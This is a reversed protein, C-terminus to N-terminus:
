KFALTLAKQWGKFRYIYTSLSPLLGRRADSYSPKRSHKKEFNKLFDLLQDNTYRYRKLSVGHQILLSAVKSEIDKRGYKATRNRMKPKMDKYTPMRKEKQYFDFYFKVTEEYRAQRSKEWKMTSGPTRYPIGAMTCAQKMGDKGYVLRIQQCLHDYKNDTHTNMEGDNKDYMKRLRDVLQAPCTGHLNQNERRKGNEKLTDRIKEKEAETKKGGPRLNAMRKDLGSAILKARHAENILATTQLLGVHDKYESARMNHERVIHASLNEFWEGCFHCQIKDSVTDFLLAGQFGFGGLFDMFPEKYNYISVSGSPAQEYEM